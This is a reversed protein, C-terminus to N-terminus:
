VLTWNSPFFCIDFFLKEYMKVNTCLCEGLRTFVSVYKDLNGGSFCCFLGTVITDSRRKYFVKPATLADFLVHFHTSKYNKFVKGLYTINYKM